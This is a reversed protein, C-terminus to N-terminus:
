FGRVVGILFRVQEVEFSPANFRTTGAGVLLELGIDRDDNTRIGMGFSMTMKAIDFGEFHKGFVNGVDVFVFGDVWVWIPYTYQLTTVSASEGVFRGERFGRMLEHGGLM